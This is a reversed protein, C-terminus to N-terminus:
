TIVIPLNIVLTIVFYFIFFKVCLKNMFGNVKYNSFIRIFVYCKILVSDM